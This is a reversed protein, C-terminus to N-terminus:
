ADEVTVDFKIDRSRFLGIHDNTDTGDITFLKPNVSRDKNLNWGNAFGGDPYIELCKNGCQISLVRWHTLTNREKSDVPILEGQIREDADLGNLWGEM